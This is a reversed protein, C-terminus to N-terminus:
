QGPAGGAHHRLYEAARSGLQVAIRSRSQRRVHRTFNGLHHWELWGLSQGTGAPADFTDCFTPVAGPSTVFACSQALAAAPIAGQGALLGLMAPAAALALAYGARKRTRRMVSAAAHVFSM